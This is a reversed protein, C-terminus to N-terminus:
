FWEKCPLRSNHIKKKKYLSHCTKIQECTATKTLTPCGDCVVHLSPANQVNNPAHRKFTHCLRTPKSCFSAEWKQLHNQTENVPGATNSFSNCSQIIPWQIFKTEVLLSRLVHLSITCWKSGSSFLLSSLIMNIIWEVNKDDDLIQPTTNGHSCM